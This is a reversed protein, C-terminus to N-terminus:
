HTVSIIQACTEACLYCAESCIRCHEMHEHSGCEDGCEQCVELCVNALHGVIPSNRLIFRVLLACIDACDRNLRICEAMETSAENLCERACNECAEICSECAKLCDLYESKM